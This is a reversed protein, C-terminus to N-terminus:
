GVTVDSYSQRDLRYLFDNKFKALALTTRQERFLDRLSFYNQQRVTEVPGIDLL